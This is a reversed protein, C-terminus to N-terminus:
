DGIRYHRDPQEEPTTEACWKAPDHPTGAAAGCVDCPEHGPCRGAAACDSDPGLHTPPKAPAGPAGPRIVANACVRCVGYDEPRVPCDHHEPPGYDEDDDECGSYDIHEVYPCWMCSYDGYALVPVCPGGHAHRGFYGGDIGLSAERPILPCEMFVCEEVRCHGDQTFKWQCTPTPLAVAKAM